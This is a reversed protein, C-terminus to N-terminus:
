TNCTPAIYLPDKLVGKSKASVNISININVYVTYYM